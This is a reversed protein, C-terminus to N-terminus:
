VHMSTMHARVELWWQNTEEEVERGRQELALATVVEEETPGADQLM